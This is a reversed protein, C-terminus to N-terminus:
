TEWWTFSNGRKYRKIMSQPAYQLCIPFWSIATVYVCPVVHAFVFLCLWACLYCIFNRRYAFQNRKFLLGVFPYWSNSLCFLCWSCIHIKKFLELEGFCMQSDLQDGILGDLVIQIVTLSRGRDNWLGRLFIIILISIVFNYKFVSVAAFNCKEWGKQM